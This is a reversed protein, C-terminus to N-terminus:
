IGEGDRVVMEALDTAFDTLERKFVEKSQEEDIIFGNPAVANALIYILDNTPMKGDVSISSISRDSDFRM